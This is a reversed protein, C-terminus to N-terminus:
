FIKKDKLRKKYEKIEDIINNGAVGLMKLYVELESDTIKVPNHPHLKNWKYSIEVWKNKLESVIEKPVDRKHPPPPDPMFDKVRLDWRWTDGGSGKITVHPPEVEENDYIKFHWDNKYKKPVEIIEPL